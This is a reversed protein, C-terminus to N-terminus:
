NDQKIKELTIHEFNKSLVEFFSIVVAQFLNKQKTNTDVVPIQDQLM